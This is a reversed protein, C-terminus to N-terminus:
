ERRYIFEELYNGLSSVGRFEETMENNSNSFVFDKVIIENTEYEIEYKGNSLPKWRFPNYYQDGPYTSSCNSENIFKMGKGNSQFEWFSRNACEDITIQPSQGEETLVSSTLIWKGVIINDIEGSDYSTDSCSALLALIIIITLYKIKKM